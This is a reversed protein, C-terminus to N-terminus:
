LGDWQWDYPYHPCCEREWDYPRDPHELVSIILDVLLWILGVPALVFTTWIVTSLLTDLM